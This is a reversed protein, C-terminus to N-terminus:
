FEFAVAVAALPAIYVNFTLLLVLGREIHADIFTYRIYVGMSTYVYRYSYCLPGSANARQHSAV